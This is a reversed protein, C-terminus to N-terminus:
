MSHKGGGVQLGIHISLNPTGAIEIAHYVLNPTSTRRFSRLIKWHYWVISSCVVQKAIVRGTNALNPMELEEVLFLNNPNHDAIILRMQQGWVYPQSLYYGFVSDCNGLMGGPNDM